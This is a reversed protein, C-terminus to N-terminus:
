VQGAQLIEARLHRLVFRQLLQIDKAKSGVDDTLARRDM